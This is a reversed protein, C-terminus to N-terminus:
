IFYFILCIKLFIFSFLIGITLLTGIGLFVKLKVEKLIKNNEFSEKKHKDLYNSIFSEERGVKELENISFGKYENGNKFILFVNYSGIFDEVRVIENELGSKISITNNEKDLTITREFDDEKKVKRSLGGYLPVKKFALRYYAGIGMMIFSIIVLIYFDGLAGIMAFIVAIIYIPNFITDLKSLELGSLIAKVYSKKNKYKRKYSIIKESELEEFQKTSNIKDGLFELFNNKEEETDFYNENCIYFLGVANLRLFIYGEEFIIDKIEGLSIDFVGRNKFRTNNYSFKEDTFEITINNEKTGKKSVGSVVKTLINIGWDRDAFVIRNINKLDDRDITFELKM